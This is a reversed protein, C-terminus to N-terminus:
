YDVRIDKPTRREPGAVPGHSSPRGLIEHLPLSCHSTFSLSTQRITDAHDKRLTQLLPQTVRPEAEHREGVDADAAIELM